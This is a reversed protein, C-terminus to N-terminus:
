LPKRGMETLKFRAGLVGMTPEGFISVNESNVTISITEGKDVGSSGAQMTHQGNSVAVQKIEGRKLAVQEVDDIWVYMTMAAGAITNKREVTILSEGMKPIVPDVLM